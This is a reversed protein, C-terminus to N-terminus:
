RRKMAKLRREFEDYRMGDIESPVRNETTRYDAKAQPSELRLIRSDLQELRRELTALRASIQESKVSIRHDQNPQQSSLREQQCGLALFGASIVTIRAFM